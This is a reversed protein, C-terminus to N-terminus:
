RVSKRKRTKKQKSPKTQSKQIPASKHESPKPKPKSNLEAQAGFHTGGSAREPELSEKQRFVILLNIFFNIFFAVAIGIIKCIRPDWHTLQISFMMVGINVTMGLLAFIFFLGFKRVSPIQKFVFISTLLFNVVVAVLFSTVAAPLIEVGFEHLLAFGGGDVIAAM